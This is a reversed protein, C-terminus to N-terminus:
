VEGQAALHLPDDPDPNLVFQLDSKLIKLDYELDDLRSEVKEMRKLLVTEPNSRQKKKEVQGQKRM